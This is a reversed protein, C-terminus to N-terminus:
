GAESIEVIQGGSDVKILFYNGHCSFPEAVAGVQTCDNVHEILRSIPVTTSGTRGPGLLEASVETTVSYRVAPGSASFTAGKPGCGLAAASARLQEEPQLVGSVAHILKYGPRVFGPNCSAAASASATPSPGASPSSSSGSSSGPSPSAVISGSPTAPAGSSAGAETAPQSGCAAVSLSLALAAGALGATRLAPRRVFM